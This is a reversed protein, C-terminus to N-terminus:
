INVLVQIISAGNIWQKADTFDQIKNGADVFYFFFGLAYCFAQETYLKSHM